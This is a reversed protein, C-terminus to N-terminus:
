KERGRLSLSLSLSFSSSFRVDCTVATYRMHTFERDDKRPCRELLKPPVQCDLVLNGNYLQVRKVTKYRRPQRQPISGYQVPIPIDDSYGPNPGGLLTPDFGGPLVLSPDAQGPYHGTTSSPDNQTSWRNHLLPASDPEDDTPDQHGQNSPTPGLGLHQHSAFPDQNNTTSSDYSHSHPPGLPQHYPDGLDQQQHPVPQAWQPPQSSPPYHSTSHPPPNFPDHTSHQQYQQPNSYDATGPAQGDHDVVSNQGGYPDYPPQQQHQDHSYSPAPFNPDTYVPYQGGYGVMDVVTSQTDLSNFLSFPFPSPLLSTRPPRHEFRSKRLREGRM